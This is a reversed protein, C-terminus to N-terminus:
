RVYVSGRGAGSFHQVFGSRNKDGYGWFTDGAAFGFGITGTDYNMDTNVPPQDLSTSLLNANKISHAPDVSSFREISNHVYMSHPWSQWQNFPQKWSDVTCWISYEHQNTLLENIVADDLKINHVYNSNLHENTNWDIVAVRKWEGITLLDFTHGFVTYKKYRGEMVLLEDQNGILM